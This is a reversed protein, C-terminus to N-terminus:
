TLKWWQSFPMNLASELRGVEIPVSYSRIQGRHLQATPNKEVRGNSFSGRGIGTCSQHLPEEERSGAQEWMYGFTIVRRGDTANDWRPRLARLGAGHFSCHVPFAYSHCSFLPCHWCSILHPNIHPMAPQHERPTGISENIWTKHWGAPSGSATPQM